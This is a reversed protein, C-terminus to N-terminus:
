DGDTEKKNLRLVAANEIIAQRYKIKMEDILPGIIANRRYQKTKEDVLQEMAAIAVEISAPDHPDFNVTGLKGDIQELAKQADKLQRAFEDLGTIKFM